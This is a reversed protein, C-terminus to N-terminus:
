LTICAHGKFFLDKHHDTVFLPQALLDAAAAALGGGELQLGRKYPSHFLSSIRIM